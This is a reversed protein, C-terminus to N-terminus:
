SKPLDITPVTPDQRSGQSGSQPAPAPKTPPVAPAPVVQTPAEHSVTPHQGMDVPKRPPSAVTTPTPTVAVHTGTAMAPMAIVPVSSDQKSLGGPELTKAVVPGWKELIVWERRGRLWILGATATSLAATAGLIARGVATDAGGLDAALTGLLGSASTLVGIGLVTYREVYQPFHRLVAAATTRVSM